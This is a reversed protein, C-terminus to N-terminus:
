EKPLRGQPTQPTPPGQGRHVVPPRTRPAEWRTAEGKAVSGGSAEPAATHGSNRPRVRTLLSYATFTTPSRVGRKLVRPFLLEEVRRTALSGFGAM